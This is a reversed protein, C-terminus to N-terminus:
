RSTERARDRLLAVPVLWVLGTLAVTVVLPLPRVETTERWPEDFGNRSRTERVYGLLGWESVFTAHSGTDIVKGGPGIRADATAFGTGGSLRPAWFEVSFSLAVFSLLVGFAQRM